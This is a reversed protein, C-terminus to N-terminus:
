SIITNDFDTENISQNVVRALKEKEIRVVLQKLSEFWVRKAFHARSEPNAVVEENVLVYDQYGYKYCIADVIRQAAENSVEFSIIPM